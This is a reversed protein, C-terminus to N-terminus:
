LKALDQVKKRIGEPAENSDIDQHAGAEIWWKLIALEDATLQPKGQPPMHEEDAEPLEARFIMEIRKPDDADPTVISGNGGGAILKEYTHMALRGKAKEVGHCGNCKEELVPRLIKEYVVVGDADPEVVPIVPAVPQPTPAPKDVEAPDEKPPAKAVPEDGQQKDMMVYVIVGVLAALVIAFLFGFTGSSQKVVVPRAQSRVPAGTAPMVRPAVAAGKAAAAKVPAQAKEPAAPEPAAPAPSPEEAPAPAQEPIEGRELVEAEDEPSEPIIFKSSCNPCRGKQGVLFKSVEIPTQCIPCSIKM